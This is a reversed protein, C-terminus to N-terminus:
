CTRLILLQPSLANKQEKTNKARTACKSRKQAKTSIAPVWHRGNLKQHDNPKELNNQLKNPCDM